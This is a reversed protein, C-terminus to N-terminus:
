LTKSISALSDIDKSFNQGAIYKILKTTPPKTKIILLKILM